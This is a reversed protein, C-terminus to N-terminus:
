EGRLEASSHASQPFEGTYKPKHASLNMKRASYLIREEAQFCFYLIIPNPMKQM